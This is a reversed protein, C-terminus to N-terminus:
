QEKNVNECKIPISSEWSINGDYVTKGYTNGGKYPQTVSVEFYFCEGKKNKYAAYVTRKRYDIVLGNYIDGWESKLVCRLPKMGSKAFPEICVNVIEAELKKDSFYPWPMRQSEFRGEKYKPLWENLYSVGSSTNLEFEGRAIEFISMIGQM